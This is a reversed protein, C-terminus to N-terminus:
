PGISVYVSMEFSEMAIVIVIIFIFIFVFGGLFLGGCFDFGPVIGVDYEDNVGVGIEGISL